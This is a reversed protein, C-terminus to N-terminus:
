NREACCMLITMAICFIGLATMLIGGYYLYRNIPNVWLQDCTVTFASSKVCERYRNKCCSKPYGGLDYLKVSGKVGCCSYNHEIFDMITRDSKRDKMMNIMEEKEYNLFLSVVVLALAGLLLLLLGSVALVFKYICSFFKIECNVAIFGIIGTAIVIAGFYIIYKSMRQPWNEQDDSLIKEEKKMGFVSLAVIGVGALIIVLNAINFLIVFVFRLM